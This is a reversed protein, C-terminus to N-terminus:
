KEGTKMRELDSAFLAYERRNATTTATPKLLDHLTQTREHELTPRAEANAKAREEDLKKLRTEARKRKSRELLSEAFAARKNGDLQADCIWNGNLDRIIAMLPDHQDILVMVDQGDWNELESHWYENNLVTLWGRQVRRTFGPRFLDRAEVETLPFYDEADMQNFLHQRMMTPTVNGLASHQHENNYWSVASEIVSLLEEWTPLKGSAWQQKPTLETKGEKTAKALSATATSVRRVTDRDAGPGYYTEFARAIPHALTKMVREIIGRGQPNGPIGTEHRIGLRPLIGTIDADFAKNAQGAGNDSYYIAPIGNTTMAHRLADAVAFTNESYALSWGVIYRSAADMILTLEPTFPQGHDPHRVKMKLSHGDGVWVDNNMLGSWDRKQYTKLAKLQAGTMRGFERIHRPLKNMARRVVDYHPCDNVGYKAIFAKSFTRYAEALCLGNTNRYVALFDPLWSVHTVEIAPKGQKLPALTRLRETGNHCREADICWQHLARTGVGPKSAKRGVAVACVTNLDDPLDGARSQASVLKVAQVRGWEVELAFVYNAVRLRADAIDRQKNTLKALDREAIARSRQDAPSNKVLAKHAKARIEEQVVDPLGDFAYEYGGGKGDRAWGEWGERKAKKTVGPRSHPLSSLKLNALEQASYGTKLNM